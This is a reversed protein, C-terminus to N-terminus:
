QDFWEQQKSLRRGPKQLVVWYCHKTRSRRAKKWKSSAATPRRVKVIIDEVRFGLREAVRCLYHSRRVYRDANVFDQVKALVCGQPRLVRKAEMLPPRWSPLQGIVIGFKREYGPATTTHRPLHPPDFVVIDVSNDADPLSDWNCIADPKVAPDIDYGYVKHAYKSGRWIRRVNCCIDIMRSAGPVHLDILADLLGGELPETWVSTLTHVTM